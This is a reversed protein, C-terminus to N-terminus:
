AQYGKHHERVECSMELSFTLIQRFIIIPQFILNDMQCISYFISSSADHGKVAFLSIKMCVSWSEWKLYVNRPLEQICVFFIFILDQADDSILKTM